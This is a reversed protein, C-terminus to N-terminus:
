RTGFYGGIKSNRHDYRKTMHYSVIKKAESQCKRIKEREEIYAEYDGCGSHCRFHRKACDKCPVKM